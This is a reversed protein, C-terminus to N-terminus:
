KKMRYIQTDWGEPPPKIWMREVEVCNERVTCTDAARLCAQGDKMELWGGVCLSSYAFPLDCRQTERIVRADFEPDNTM